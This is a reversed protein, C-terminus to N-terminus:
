KEFHQYDKVNRWDGGWRFGCRRFLRYCLDGRVIRYASRRARNAYPAGQPPSVRGGRTVYPNYLPNIDVARGYSHASLRRTGAIPRYNFASTNNDAMSKVDDAGYRDVLRMREIPYRARHLERFIGLLDDAVDKHCVLEGRRERGAADFHKVTLYRLDARAVPCGERFSAGQMIRFVSDPVEAASFGDAESGSWAVSAPQRVPEAAKGRVSRGRGAGAAVIGCVFLCVIIVLVTRKM